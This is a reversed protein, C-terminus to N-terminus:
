VQVASPSLSCYPVFPGQFGRLVNLYELSQRSPVVAGIAWAMSAWVTRYLLALRYRLPAQSLLLDKNAWFKKRAKTTLACVVDVPTLGPRIPIGMVNLGQEPPLAKVVHGAISISNGKVDGRTLLQCKVPNVALGWEALALGLADVSCCLFLALGASTMTWSAFIM